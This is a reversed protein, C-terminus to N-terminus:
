NVEFIQEKYFTSGDKTKGHIILKYNGRIDSTEFDLNINQEPKLSPKWLLVKRLDMENLRQELPVNLTVNPQIVNLNLKILDDSEAVRNYDPKSTYIAVVGYFVLNGYFRKSHCVEIRDIEKSGLDKIVNLDRIPIGDLLLLPQDNFFNHLAPSFVQLSPIRNYARFKVGPLLERSIETFNPLEIFLQPDIVETPVGYFPYDDTKNVPIPAITLEQCNFIKSFTVADINDMTSKRFEPSITWTEFAPIGSKLSDRNNLVVKLLRKEDPDFGQVVVPIKGFYNDLQFNFHGDEGTIYYKFRPITDPISLFVIGNKFPEGTKIDKVFGELIVGEKEIIQNKKPKAIRYFTNPNYGPAIEAVSVFLNENIQSLLESPLRLTLNAKGRTKYTTDLGDIQLAAPKEAVSNTESSRLAFNSEPLGSFQNSIYIEKVTLTPNTKTSTCLLYCGSSLSDPLDIFGDTQHDIIKKSIGSIIKGNTNILDVSVIGSQEDSPAFVKLLLTEGSIYLDRDTFLNFYEREQAKGTLAFFLLLGTIIRRKM